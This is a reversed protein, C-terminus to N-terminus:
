RLSTSQKQLAKDGFRRAVDYGTLFKVENLALFNTPDAM